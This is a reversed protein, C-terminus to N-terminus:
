DDEAEWRDFDDDDLMNNKRAMIIWLRRTQLNFRNMSQLEQQMMDIRRDTQDIRQNTQDIRQNTQDIRQDMRNIQQQMLGIQDQTHVSLQKLELVANAMVENVQLLDRLTDDISDLRKEIITM